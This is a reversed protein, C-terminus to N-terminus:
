VTPESNEPKGGTKSVFFAKVMRYVFGSVLGAASGGMVRGEWGTGLAEPFPYNRLTLALVVGIVCPMIPLFFDRWYFSKKWARKKREVLRRVMFCVVWVMLCFLVIPLTIFDDLQM